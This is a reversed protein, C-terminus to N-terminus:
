LLAPAAHGGPADNHRAAGLVAAAVVSRWGRRLVGIMGGLGVM